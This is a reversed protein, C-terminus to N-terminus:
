SAKTKDLKNLAEELIVKYVPEDILRRLVNRQAKATAKQMAFDDDINTNKFKKPQSAISVLEINRREDRGRAKAVYKDDKDKCEIDVIRINGQRKIAAMIGAYSLGTVERGGSTKFQYAYEKIIKGQLEQKIQETDMEEIVLAEEHGNTTDTKEIEETNKLLSKKKRFDVLTTEEEM